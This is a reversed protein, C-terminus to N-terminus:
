KKKKIYFTAKRKNLAELMNKEANSSAGLPAPPYFGASMDIRLSYAQQRGQEFLLELAMLKKIIADKQM